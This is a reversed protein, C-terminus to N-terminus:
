CLSFSRLCPTRLPMQCLKKALEGDVLVVLPLRGRSWPAECEFEFTAICVANIEFLVLARRNSLTCFSATM